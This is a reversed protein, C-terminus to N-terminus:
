QEGYKENFAAVYSSSPVEELVPVGSDDVEPIEDGLDSLDAGLTSEVQVYEDAYAFEQLMLVHDVQDEVLGYLRQKGRVSGEVILMSGNDVMAWLLGLFRKRAEKTDKAPLVDYIPGKSRFSVPQSYIPAWGVVRFEGNSMRLDALDDDTIEVFEHENRWVGKIVQAKDLVEGTSEAVTVRKVSEPKDSTVQGSPQKYAQSRKVEVKSEDVTPYAKLDFQQGGIAFSFSFAARM